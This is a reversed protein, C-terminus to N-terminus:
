LFHALHRLCRKAARSFTSGSGFADYTQGDITVSCHVTVKKQTQYVQENKNINYEKITNAFGFSAFISIFLITLFLKKM